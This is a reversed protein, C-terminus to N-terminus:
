HEERAVRSPRVWMPTTDWPVKWARTVGLSHTKCERPSTPLPPSKACMSPKQVDFVDLCEGCQVSTLNDKLVAQLLAGCSPCSFQFTHHDM